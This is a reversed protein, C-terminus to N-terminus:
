RLFIEDAQFLKKMNKIRYSSFLSPFQIKKFNFDGWGFIGGYVQCQWIKITEGFHIEFYHLCSKPDYLFYLIQFQLTYNGWQPLWYQFAKLLFFYYFFFFFLRFNTIAILLAKLYSSHSFNKYIFVFTQSQRTIRIYM